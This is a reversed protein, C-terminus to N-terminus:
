LSNTLQTDLHEWSCTVAKRAVMTDKHIHRSILLEEAVKVERQTKTMVQRKAETSHFM